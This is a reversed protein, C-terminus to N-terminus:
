DIEAVIAFAQRQFVHGLHEQVELQAARVAVAAGEEIGVARMGIRLRELEEGQGARQVPERPPSDRAGFPFLEARDDQPTEPSSGWAGERAPRSGRRRRPPLM